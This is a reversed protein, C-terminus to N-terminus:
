RGSQMARRNKFQGNDDSFIVEVRRNQQRGYADDNSAVPYAEGLGEIEIRDRSIGREGIANLVSRARRESLAQNYDESGVSDTHGEVLIRREPNAGLFDALKDMTRMAGAKLSAKGTDFLVDGLTLVMGRDTQKAQLDELQAALAKAKNQAELAQARAMEAENLREEALQRAQEAEMRQQEAEMRRQEAREAASEAERTRSEILIQDRQAKSDEISQRATAQKAVEQAILSRQKALYAYHSVQEAKAGEAQLKEARQLAEEAHRLQVLASKATQPDGAASRYATRAEDLQENKMPTSSCAALGLAAFAAILAAPRSSKKTNM